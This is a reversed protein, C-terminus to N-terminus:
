VVYVYPVYHENADRQKVQSTNRIKNEKGNFRNSEWAKTLEFVWEFCICAIVTQTIDMQIYELTKM